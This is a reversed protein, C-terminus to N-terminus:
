GGINRRLGEKKGREELREEVSLAVSDIVEVTEPLMELSFLEMDRQTRILIASKAGKSLAARALKKALMVLNEGKRQVRMPLMGGEVRLFADISANRQVPLIDLGALHALAEEDANRYAQRGKKLLSSDTKFPNEIRNKTLEIAEESRDIGICRRKLLLAAVLTTGSGCFPDLILDGEDSALAIMRELLLIPKQTPYGTRERAKPNLFPIEWVDSLPVGKKENGYLIEGQEDKAYAVIGRQDRSRLQLIQDINTSESYDGYLRNFKFHDSKSYFFITQHAPLLGKTSNSWRRYTWIIESRFQSSGFIEDLLMRLLFNAHADCHVFLSGTKKMVRYIQCLRESLFAAYESLSGWRDSFAYQKGERSLAQHQRNTFFPPDLYVFDICEDDFKKLAELCDDHIIECNKL